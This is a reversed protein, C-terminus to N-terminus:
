EDDICTYDVCLSKLGVFKQLFKGVGKAVQSCGINLLEMKKDSDKSIYTLLDNCIPESSDTNHIFIYM